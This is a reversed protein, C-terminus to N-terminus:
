IAQRSEAVSRSGVSALVEVTVLTMDDARREPPYGDLEALLSHHVGSSGAPAASVLALLASMVTLDPEVAELIGDTMLVVIDGKSLPYREDSYSSERLIGLPPGSARGIVAVEGEANRLIAPVHAANAVTLTGADPDLELAAGTVFRDCPLRKGLHENLEYLVRSPPTVLRSLEVFPPRIRPLFRAGESGRGCADGIVVALRQQPCLQVSYFDGGILGWAARSEAFIRFPGL